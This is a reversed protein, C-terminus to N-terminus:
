YLSALPVIGPRGHACVFPQECRSVDRMLAICEDRSLVMGFMVASRCAISKCVDMLALPVIQSTGPRGAIDIIVQRLLEPDAAFRAKCPVPVSHVLCTYASLEVSFGHRQFQDKCRYVREWVGKGVIGLAIPPDLEGSDSMGRLIQELKVREDVAHQDAIVLVGNRTDVAAIFKKDVQGLVSLRALDERRLNIRTHVRTPPAADLALAVRMPTGLTNWKTYEDLAQLRTSSNSLTLRRNTTRRPLALSAPGQNVFGQDWFNGRSGIVGVADTHIPAM